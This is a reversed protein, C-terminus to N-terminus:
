GPAFGEGIGGVGLGLRGVLRHFSHLGGGRAGAGSRAVSRGLLLVDSSARGRQSDQALQRVVVGRVVVHRVGVCLAGPLVQRHGAALSEGLFLVFLLTARVATTGDVNAGGRGRELELVLRSKSERCM